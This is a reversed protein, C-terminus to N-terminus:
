ALCFSNLCLFDAKNYFAQQCTFFFVNFDTMLSQIEGSGRLSPSFLSTDLTM